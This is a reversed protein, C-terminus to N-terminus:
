WILFDFEKLKYVAEIFFFDGYIIPYHHRKDHYAGTGMQVISDENEEWNCFKKDAAKLINLAANIYTERELEPVAKAIELLACASLGSATSDYIVPDPPSRFDCRPLWDNCVCSIFYHAIRKATDLYEQKGTHIYSLIFGYLGWGQGRSWSTGVEFGQGRLEDIVGGNIYDHIIIHKVSGDPRVHNKMTMDAHSEAIFRFRPDDAERSAWYLLPINMMTDIITWGQRDKGNWARIFEGRINYRSALFKAAYFARAKSKENGTLRYNAGASIHWLFGADHDLDSYKQLPTDLMAEANEAVERFISDNTSAYMLWMIAPWFGNTWWFVSNKAFKDDHVGNETTFPLKDKSRPATIKLKNYIRDWTEDVWKKSEESINYV